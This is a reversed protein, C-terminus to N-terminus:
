AGLDATAEADAPLVDGLAPGPLDGKAIAIKVWYIVTSRPIGLRKSIAAKAHGELKMAIAKRRTAKRADVKKAHEPDYTARKYIVNQIRSKTLGTEASIEAFTYGAKHLRRLKLQMSESLKLLPGEGRKGYGM